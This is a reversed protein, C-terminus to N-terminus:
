ALAMFKWRLELICLVEQPMGELQFLHYLLISIPLALSLKFNIELGVLGM